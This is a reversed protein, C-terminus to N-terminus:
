SAFGCAESLIVTRSLPARCSFGPEENARKVRRQPAARGRYRPTGHKCRAFDLDLDLAASLLTREVRASCNRRTSSTGKGITGGWMDVLTSEVKTSKVKGWPCTLTSYTGLITRSSPPRTKRQPTPGSAPRRSFERLSCHAPRSHLPGRRSREPCAKSQAHPNMFRIRMSREPHCLM